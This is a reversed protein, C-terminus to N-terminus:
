MREPAECGLLELGNRLVQAAAAALALRAHRVSKEPGLIFHRDYCIHLSRALERLYHALQHPERAAAADAVVEPYQALNRLLQQEEQEQLLGACPTKPGPPPDAFQQRSRRLVSHVRAHAFQLYYVPNENSQERALELDFDLHQERKRLVYFFRAADKGSEERLQRLTVYSGARTSMAAKQGGRSLSVFQILLVELSEQPIGCIQLAARLRAVYGHHDAGWVDILKPFARELKELHYALDAAFYTPRGNERVLVRDKEDGHASSRLWVARDKRFIGGGKELRALVAEIRGSKQIESERSWHTIPVGFEQLELRIDELVRELAFRRLAEFDTEGLTARVELLLADLEAEGGTAAARLTDGPPPRRLRDGEKRYLENGLAQPTPGQYANKPFPRQTADAVELYRLWTSLALVETQRGTDNVYYERQVPHGVAELLRALSDGYAAGRGHGVHLPGTPNASVFELLISPRSGAATRGYATGRDLIKGLERLYAQGSIFFNLFGPGAIEVRDLLPSDPMAARISEALPRPATGRSGARLLAINSAYDGHEVRRPRELVPASDQNGAARDAEQQPVANRLAQNLLALLHTRLM